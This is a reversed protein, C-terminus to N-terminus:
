IELVYGKLWNNMQIQLKQKKAFHNCIKMRIKCYLIIGIASLNFSIAGIIIINYSATIYWNPTYDSFLTIKEPKFDSNVLAQIM